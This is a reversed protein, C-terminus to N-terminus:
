NGFSISKRNYQVVKNDIMILYSGPDPVSSPAQYENYDTRLVIVHEFSYCSTWVPAIVLRIYM